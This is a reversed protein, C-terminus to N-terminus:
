PIDRRRFGGFGIVLFAVTFLSIWVLGWWDQTGTAVHPVHYFPSIGLAWDPLKFSPGFLTLGFSGLVGAWSAIQVHPRAGIVAVALAVVTWVAPITAVAQLPPYGFDLGIDATAALVGVVVGAILIFLAPAAFAVLVSPALYRTRSVATALVPEARDQLEETRVRNVIQVGAISAVIGILTVITALFGALLEAPVTAGRAFIEALAPNASFLDRVTRTFYGFVVGLGVFAVSWSAVPARNLRIVLGLPTRATGRAPGAKADVLGQGFDRSVQLAFAVVVCVATFALGLLLPSWHNGTAPHTETIWGLPNVWTTWRPAGISYLFGRLVFLVGLVAVAISTATRADSAIQATVAAVAAFMWGTCTFGASLLLSSEWGGGCLVTFTFSVVGVALACVAAMLLATLLRAERGLVGAALLEAQGSDEQGRSARVVIFIAGLAAFFGGIALSRWANFGDVTSLDYAPGFILGLAPNAGVTAAFRLREATEPFLWPYVIVSSVSLATAIAVWPAFSRAEHKLSARLLPPTGAIASFPAM